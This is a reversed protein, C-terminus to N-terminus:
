SVPTTATGRGAEGPELLYERTVCLDRFGMGEYTGRGMPSTGLAAVRYGLDRAHRLAARTMAAGIGRRRAAPATAVNYIGALGGYTMLGSSAVVLDEMMGVFRVWPGAPDFGVARASSGIAHTEDRSLGFGETMAALWAQDSHGDAVVHIELGEPDPGVLELGAIEAALWPMPESQRWGARVLRDGLDGPRSMPDISWLAPVDAEWLVDMAEQVRRDAQGHDLRADKVGNTFQVQFGSVFLLMDPLDDVRGGVARAIRASAGRQHRALAEVIADRSTERLVESVV